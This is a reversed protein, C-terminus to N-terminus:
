VKGNISVLEWENPDYEGDGYMIHAAEDFTDADVEVTDGTINSCFEYENM